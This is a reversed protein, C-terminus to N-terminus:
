YTYGPACRYAATMGGVVDDLNSDGLEIIVPVKQETKPETANEVKEQVKDAENNM